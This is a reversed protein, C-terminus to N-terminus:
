IALSPGRLATLNQLLALPVALVLGGATLVHIRATAPGGARATQPGPPDRLVVAHVDTLYRRPLAALGAVVDVKAPQGARWRRARWVGAFLAAVLSAALFLGPLRDALM